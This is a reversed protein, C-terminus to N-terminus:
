YTNCCSFQVAMAATVAIEAAVEVAITVAVIAAVEVAM